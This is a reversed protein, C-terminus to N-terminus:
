RAYPRRYGCQVSRFRQLLRRQEHSHRPQQRPAVTGIAVILGVIGSDALTAGSEVIVGSQPQWGNVVLKGGYVRTQGASYSNNGTVTFTGTGYKALTWGGAYGIGTMPGDFQRSGDNMGVGLFAGNGFNVTGQGRLTDVWDWATGLDLLGGTSVWVDAGDAIQNAVLLRVTGGEIRLGHPITGNYAPKNLLLTGAQSCVAGNFTNAAAGSLILTDTAYFRHKSVDANTLNGTGGIPGSLNLFANTEIVDVSTNGALTIAGAWSNSGIASVLTGEGYSGSGSITLPELGVHTNMTLGLHGGNGVVTGVNTAGLSSPNELTLVGASVTTLGAYSNYAHLSLEGLGTKIIGGPGGVTASVNLDPSYDEAAVDFTRRAPMNIKGDMVAENTHLNVTVNGGIFATGTRTSIRGSNFTLPGLTNPFDNLDLRGSRNVTIDVTGAIQYDRLERVIDADSGGVGDGVILNEPGPLAADTWTKDLLLIGENVITNGAFSNVSTGSLLLTGPGSKAFGAPGGIAGSLTLQKGSDVIVDLNGNLTIPGSWTSTDLCRISADTAGDNVSLSEGAVNVNQMVLQGGANLVTGGATTGLAGDGDIFLSGASITTTGRYSNTAMWFRLQGPGTKTFGAPTGGDSVTGYCNFYTNQIDFTRNTGGLSINATIVGYDM